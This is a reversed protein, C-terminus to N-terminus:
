AWCPLCTPQPPAPSTLRLPPAVPVDLFYGRRHSHMVREGREYCMLVKRGGSSLGGPILSPSLACRGGRLPLVLPRSGRPARRSLLLLWSPAFLALDSVFLAGGTGRNAVDDSSERASGSDTRAVTMSLMPPVCASRASPFRAAAAALCPATPRDLYMLFRVRTSSFHM